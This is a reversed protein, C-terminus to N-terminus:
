FPVDEMPPMEDDHTTEDQQDPMPEDERVEGREFRKLEYFHHLADLRALDFAVKTIHEGPKSEYAHALRSYCERRKRDYEAIHNELPEALEALVNELHSPSDYLLDLEHRFVNRYVFQFYTKDRQSVGSELM